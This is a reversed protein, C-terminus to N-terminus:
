PKFLKIIGSKELRRLHYYIKQEHQKLKRAIDMACQPKKGLEALIRVALESNLANFSTPKMILTHHIKQGESHEEVVYSM